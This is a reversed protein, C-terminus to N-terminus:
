LQIEEIKQKIKDLKEQMDEKLIAKIKEQASDSIDVITINDNYGKFIDLRTIEKIEDICSIKTQFYEANTFLKKYQKLEAYRYEACNLEKDLEKERFSGM